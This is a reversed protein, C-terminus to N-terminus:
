IGHDVANRILHVLPDALRDLIARDLELEAGRLEVEVSKGLGAAVERATRPLPEVVRLLPATRLRLARRQLDGVMREMRDLGTELEALASGSEGAKTRLQSSVLIVEGVSSLFRDLTETRVRM